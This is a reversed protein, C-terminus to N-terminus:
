ESLWKWLKGNVDEGVLSILTATNETTLGLVEGYKPKIKKDYKADTSSISLDSNTVKAKISGYFKGSDRLTVRNIPQAKIRKIAITKRTYSPNIKEGSPMIGENLQARNLDEVIKPNQSISELIIDSAKEHLNDMKSIFNKIAKQIDKM